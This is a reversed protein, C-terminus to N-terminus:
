MWLNFLSFTKRKEDETSGMAKNIVGASFCSVVFDTKEHDFSFFLLLLKKWVEFIAFGLKIMLRLTSARM